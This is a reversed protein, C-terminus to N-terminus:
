LKKGNGHGPTCLADAIFGVVKRQMLEKDIGLLGLSQTCNPHHVGLMVMVVVDKARSAQTADFEGSAVGQALIESLIEVEKQAALRRTKEARKGDLRSFIALGDATRPMSESCMLIEFRAEIFRELKSLATGGGKLIQRERSVIQESEHEIVAQHIEKKNRFYTYITRRGKDSALAIDLMTTNEVGKRAFLQRAVEILKDRTKSAM